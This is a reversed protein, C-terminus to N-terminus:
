RPYGTCGTCTTQARQAGAWAARAWAADPVHGVIADLWRLQWPLNSASVGPVTSGAFFSWDANMFQQWYDRTGLGDASQNKSLYDGGRLWLSQFACCRVVQFISVGAEGPNPVQITPLSTAWALLVEVIDVLITGALQVADIEWQGFEAETLLSVLEGQLEDRLTQTFASIINSRGKNVVQVMADYVACLLASMNYAAGCARQPNPPVPLPDPRSQTDQLSQDPQGYSQSVPPPPPPPPPTNHGTWMPLGTQPDQGLVAAPQATMTPFPTQLVTKGGSRLRWLTGDHEWGILGSALRARLTPGSGTVATGLMAGYSGAYADSGTNDAAGAGDTTGTDDQTVISFAFAIYAPGDSTNEGVLALLNNQGPLCAALPVGWWQTAHFESAVPAPLLVGNLYVEPMADDAYLAISVSVLGTPFAIYERFLAKETGSLPNATPWAPSPAGAPLEGAQTNAIVASPWASDDFAPLYWGGPPDNNGSGNWLSLARIGLGSGGTTPM